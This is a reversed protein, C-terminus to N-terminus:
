ASRSRAPQRTFTFLDRLTSSLARWSPHSPMMAPVRLVVGPADAM